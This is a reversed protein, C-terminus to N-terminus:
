ACVQMTGTGLKVTCAALFAPLGIADMSWAEGSRASDIRLEAGGAECQLIADFEDRRAM